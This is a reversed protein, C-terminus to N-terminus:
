TVERDHYLAEAECAKRYAARKSADTFSKRLPKGDPKKGVVAVSRWNGSPLQVPKSPM